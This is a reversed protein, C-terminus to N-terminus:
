TNEAPNIKHHVRFVATHLKGAQLGSCVTIELQNYIVLATSTWVAMQLRDKVQIDTRLDMRLSKPGTEKQTRRQIVDENGTQALQYTEKRRNLVRRM